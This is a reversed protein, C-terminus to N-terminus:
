SRSTSRRARGRRTWSARSPVAARRSFRPFNDSHKQLIKMVLEEVYAWVGNVMDQPVQDITGVKKKLMVLFASRPLFNPLNIAKTEELIRVEEM